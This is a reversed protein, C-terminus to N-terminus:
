FQPPFLPRVASFHNLLLMRGNPPRRLLLFTSRSALVFILSEVVIITDHVFNLQLIM